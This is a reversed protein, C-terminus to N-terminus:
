SKQLHRDNVPRQRRAYTQAFSPGVIKWIATNEEKLQKIRDSDSLRVEEELKMQAMSFGTTDSWHSQVAGRMRSDVIEAAIARYRGPDQDNESEEQAFTQKSFSFVLTAFGVLYFARVIKGLSLPQLRTVPTHIKMPQWEEHPHTSQ